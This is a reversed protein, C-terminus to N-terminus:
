LPWLGLKGEHNWYNVVLHRLDVCGYVDLTYDRLLKSKDDNVAVGVKYIENSALLERLTAPISKMKFLRILVCLGLFYM